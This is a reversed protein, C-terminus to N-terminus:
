ENGFDLERKEAQRQLIDRVALASRDEAALRRAIEAIVTEYDAQSESPIKCHVEHTFEAWADQLKTRIQIECIMRDEVVTRQKGYSKVRDYSIDALLHISRYGTGKPDRIYDELSRPMIRFQKTAQIYDLMGYCDDVFWCIVRAGILDTIVDTPYRFIPWDTRELKALFRTLSKVRHHVDVAERPLENEVTYASALQDLRIKLLQSISELEDGYCDFFRIARETLFDRREKRTQPEAM